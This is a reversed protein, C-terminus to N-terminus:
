EYAEEELETEHIPPQSSSGLAHGEELSVKNKPVPKIKNKSNLILKKRSPGAVKQIKEVVDDVIFGDKLYGERTKHTESIDSMEDYETEDDDNLKDLNHFGGFLAAYVKKWVDLTFSESPAGAAPVLVLLGNGFFLVDDLPPPFEYVNEQGARGVARAWLEIVGITKVTWRTHLRFESKYTESTETLTVYNSQTMEDLLLPRLQKLTGNKKVLICNYSYASKGDSVMPRPHSFLCVVFFCVFQHIHYLYM